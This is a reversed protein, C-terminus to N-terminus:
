AAHTQRPLVVTFTAGRGVASDVQIHGGMADLVQKVIWLGLGFGSYHRESALRQFKEFLQPQDEPAIGVGQDRVRLTVTDPGAELEVDVPGDHGYKLANSLLNQLVQDLRLRDWAGEVRDPVRLRLECGVRAADEAARAAVERVLEALDLPEPELKLKGATIRSVDLLERILSTLRAVQRQASQLKPGVALGPPLAEPPVQALMRQLGQLNLKLSTLPTNLEHSAVGLFTDRAAVAEQTERYLLANDIATAARRALEEALHLDAETYRRNSDAYVLTLAAIIRGRSRLPVIIFSRIGLARVAQRRVPDPVTAAVQGDPLHALFEPEGTRLVKGIGGASGLDPPYRQHFDLAVRVQEPDQHAVVVKRVTGDPEPMDVSCWDALEPVAVRAVASLTREYDLSSSLLVSAEALFRTRAEARKREALDAELLAALAAGARQDETLDTAILWLAEASAHVRVDLWQRGHPFRHEFREPRGSAAVRELAQRLAGDEAESLVEDVAHGLLGGRARGLLREAAGNVFLCRGERSFAAFAEPLQELLDGPFGLGPLSEPPTPVRM